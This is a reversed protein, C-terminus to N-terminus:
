ATQLAKRTIHAKYAPISKKKLGTLKAVQANSLKPNVELVAKVASRNDGKEVHKKAMITIKTREIETETGLDIHNSFTKRSQDCEELRRFIMEFLIGQGFETVESQVLDLFGRFHPVMLFLDPVPNRYKDVVFMDVYMVFPKNTYRYADHQMVKAASSMTLLLNAAHSVFVESHEKNAFIGKGCFPEKYAIALVQQVTDVPLVKLKPHIQQAMADEWGKESMWYDIYNINYPAYLWQIHQLAVKTYAEEKEKTLNNIAHQLNKPERSVTVTASVVAKDKIIRNHYGSEIFLQSIQGMFDLSLVDFKMDTSGATIFEQYTQCALLNFKMEKSLVQLHAHVKPDSELAYLNKRQIGVKDFVETVEIAEPGPFFLIKADQPKSLERKLLNRFKKRVRAKVSTQYSM